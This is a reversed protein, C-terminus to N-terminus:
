NEDDSENFQNFEEESIRWFWLWEQKIYIDHNTLPVSRVDDFKISKSEMQKYVTRYDDLTPCHHYSPMAWFELETESLVCEDDSKRFGIITGKFTFDVLEDKEGTEADGSPSSIRKYQNYLTGEVIYKVGDSEFTESVSKETDVMRNTEYSIGQLIEFAQKRLESTMDTWILIDNIYDIIEQLKETEGDHLDASYLVKGDESLHLISFTDKKILMTINQGQDQATILMALLLPELMKQRKM